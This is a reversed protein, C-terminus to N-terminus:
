AYVLQVYQQHYSTYLKQKFRYPLLTNCAAWFICFINIKMSRTGMRGLWVWKQRCFSDSNSMFQSSCCFIFHVICILQSTVIKWIGMYPWVVTLLLLKCYFATFQLLFCYNATFLLLICYFVTIQLLFCYDATFLLLRCYFATIHLLFCYAATFHFFAATFLRSKPALHGPAELLKGWKLFPNDM